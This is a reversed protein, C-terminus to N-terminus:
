IANLRDVYTQLLETAQKRSLVNNDFHLSIRMRGDYRAVSFNAPTGQRVPGVLDFECPRLYTDPQSKSVVVKRTKENKRLPEGLNTFVAMGRSKDHKVGRVLLPEICSLLRIAILFIKELQWGRIILIERNLLHYFKNLDRGDKGRRDIQVITARNASPLRRDSSTRISMPLIVRIWDDEAHCDERTRWDALALYLQGLLVSNLMVENSKAEAALRNFQTPELWAGIISPYQGFSGDSNQTLKESPQTSSPRDHDPILKATKRFAFKTAGFMAVPQKWLHKIYQWKLLGLNNRRKLLEPDFRQLGTEPPQGGCLNGYIVMWENVPILAGIGDTIAHHVRLWVESRYTVTAGPNSKDALPWVFVGLYSGTSGRIPHEDYSWDPPQAAFKEFEFRTGNWTEFSSNQEGKGRPGLTWHWRGRIKKPEVDAFPQREIALQWAQRAIAEDIEGDFRLRTYVVNPFEPRHDFWHFKEISTMPMPFLDVWSDTQKRAM